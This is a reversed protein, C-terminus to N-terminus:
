DEHRREWVDMCEECKGGCWLIPCLVFGDEYREIIAELCYEVRGLGHNIGDATHCPITYSNADM